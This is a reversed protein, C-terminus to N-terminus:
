SSQWSLQDGQKINIESAHGGALELVSTAAKCASMRWPSLRHVVKIVRSEPDLYILDISYSMWLTHVSNCPSLLLAEGAQLPKRGLLGRLRLWPSKALYVRSIKTTQGQMLSASPM